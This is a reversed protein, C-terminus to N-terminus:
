VFRKLILDGLALAITGIIATVALFKTALAAKQADLKIEEKVIQAEDRFPHGDKTHSSFDSRIGHLISFILTDRDTQRQDLKYLVEYLEANTVKHGNPAAITETM